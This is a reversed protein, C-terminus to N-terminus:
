LRDLDYLSLRQILDGTKDLLVSVIGTNDPKYIVKGREGYFKSQISAVVFRDGVQPYNM